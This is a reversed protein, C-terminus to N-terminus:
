IRWETVPESFGCDDCQIAVPENTEGTEVTFRFENGCKPCPLVGFMNARPDKLDVKGTDSM